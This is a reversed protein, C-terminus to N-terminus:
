NINKIKFVIKDNFFQGQKDKPIIYIIKKIKGEVRVLYIDKQDPLDFAKFEIFNKTKSDKKIFM